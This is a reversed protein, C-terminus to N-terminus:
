ITACSVFCVFLMRVKCLEKPYKLRNLEMKRLVALKLDIRLLTSTDVLGSLLKSAATRLQLNQDAASFTTMSNSQITTGGATTTSASSSTTPDDLPVMKRFLRSLNGALESLMLVADRVDHVPYYSSDIPTSSSSDAVVDVAAAVVDIGGDDGQKVNNKSTGCCEKEAEEGDNYFGLRRRCQQEDDMATRKSM